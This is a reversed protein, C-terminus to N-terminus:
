EVRSIAPLVYSGDLMARGPQYMRAIPRFSLYAEAALKVQEELTADNPVTTTMTREGHTAPCIATTRGVDTSNAVYPLRADEWM